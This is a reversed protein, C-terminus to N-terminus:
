RKNENMYERIKREEWESGLIMKTNYTRIAQLIVFAGWVIWVVYVDLKSLTEEWTYGDGLYERIKFGSIFINVLVYIAVHKYFKRLEDMRKKARLYKQQKEPNTYKVREM